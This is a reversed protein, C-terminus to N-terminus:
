KVYLIDIVNIGPCRFHSAYPISYFLISYFMMAMIFFVTCYPFFMLIIDTWKWSFHLISSQNDVVFICPYLLTTSKQKYNSNWFLLWVSKPKMIFVCLSNTGTMMASTVPAAWLNARKLALGHAAGTIILMVKLRCQTTLYILNWTDSLHVLKAILVFM